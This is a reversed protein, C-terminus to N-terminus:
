EGHARNYPSNAIADDTMKHTDSDYAAVDRIASRALPLADLIEFDFKANDAGDSDGVVRYYVGYGANSAQLQNGEVQTPEVHNVTSRHLDVALYDSDSSVGSAGTKNTGALIYAM